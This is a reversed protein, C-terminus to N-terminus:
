TTGQSKVPTRDCYASFQGDSHVTVPSKETLCM